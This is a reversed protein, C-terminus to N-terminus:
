ASITRKRIKSKITREDYYYLPKGYHDKIKITAEDVYVISTGYKDKQRVSQATAFSTSLIIVLVILLNKM